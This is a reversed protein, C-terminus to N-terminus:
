EPVGAYGYSVHHQQLGCPLYRWVYQSLSLERGPTGSAIAYVRRAVCKVEDSRNSFYRGRKLKGLGKSREIIRLRCSPTYMSLRIPTARAAIARTSGNCTKACFLPRDDEWEERDDDVLVVFDDTGFFDVTALRFLLPLILRLEEARASKM